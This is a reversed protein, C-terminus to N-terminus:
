NSRSFPPEPGEANEVRSTAAWSATHGPKAPIALTFRTGQGQCSEVQVRIGARRAVHRVIALGLGTSEKNHRAAESTRYYDEFIRPLKEAPIGIGEDSVVIRAMGDPQGGCSVFVTGGDLSYNIANSLLNDILMKLHDEAAHIACPQFDGQIRINRQGAAADFRAASAQIVAALDLEALTPSTQGTSRLNALQLMDIVQQSLM